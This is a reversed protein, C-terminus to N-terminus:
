IYESYKKHDLTREEHSFLGSSSKIRTTGIKKDKNSRQMSMYVLKDDYRSDTYHM